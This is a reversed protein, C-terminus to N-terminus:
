IKIKVGFIYSCKEDKDDSVLIELGRVDEVGFLFRLYALSHSLDVALAFSRRLGVSTLHGQEVHERLHDPVLKVDRDRHGGYAVTKADPDSLEGRENIAARDIPELYFSM